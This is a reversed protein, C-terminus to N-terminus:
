LIENIRHHDAKEDTFTQSTFIRLASGSIPVNQRVRARLSERRERYDHVPSRGATRLGEGEGDAVIGDERSENGLDPGM